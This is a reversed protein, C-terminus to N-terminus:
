TIGECIGKKTAIIALNDGVATFLASFISIDEVSMDEALAIAITAALLVLDNSSLCQSM